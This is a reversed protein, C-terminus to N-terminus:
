NLITTFRFFGCFFRFYNFSLILILIGGLGKEKIRKRKEKKGKERVKKRKKKGIWVKRGKEGEREKYVKFERGQASKKGM